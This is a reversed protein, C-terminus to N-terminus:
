FWPVTWWGLTLLLVTYGAVLPITYVLINKRTIYGSDTKTYLIGVHPSAAPLWMGFQWAHSAWCLFGLSSLGMNHTITYLIPIMVFAVAVCDTLNTTIMAFLILVAFVGFPSMNGVMPSLIGTLWAGIGTVELTMVGTVANIAALMLVLDWNMGHDTIDKITIFPSGDRRRIILALGTFLLSFGGTGVDTLVSKILGDPLVLPFLLCIIFGILILLATKQNQDFPENHEPAKYAYVKDISKGGVIRVFVFSLACLAILMLLSTVIHTAVPLMLSSDFSNLIGYDIAVAMQFPMIGQAGIGVAVVMILIAIAWKNGKELELVKFINLVIQLVIVITILPHLFISPIAIALMIALTLAWPKGSAFKANVIRIALAKALGSYSMVGAFLLLAITMTVIFNGFSAMLTAGFSEYAGSIGMLCIALISPILYGMTTLGYLMGVFIGLTRMGVATLPEIPPIFWIGLCLALAIIGNILLAKNSKNM